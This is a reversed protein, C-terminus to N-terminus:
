KQTVGQIKKIQREQIARLSDLAINQFHLLTDPYDMLITLNRRIEKPDKGNSYIINTYIELLSDRYRPDTLQVAGNVLSIDVLSQVIQDRSM